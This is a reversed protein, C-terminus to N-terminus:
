KSPCNEDEEWRSPNATVYQRLNELDRDNRIVHEYFDRQWIGCACGLDKRARATVASKFGAVFSGLSRKERKLQLPVRRAGTEREHGHIPLIGHIHNPMIVFADLELEKRLSASRTWEELVILGIPTLSVAGNEVTGFICQRGSSCITVFYAGATYSHDRLRLSHRRCPRSADAM